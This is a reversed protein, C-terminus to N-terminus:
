PLPPRVQQPLRLMDLDHRKGTLLSQPHRGRDAPPGKLASHKPQTEDEKERKNRATAYQGIAAAAGEIRGASANPYLLLTVFMLRQRGLPPRYLELLSGRDPRPVSAAYPSVCATVRRGGKKGGERGGEKM